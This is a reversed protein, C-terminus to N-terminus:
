FFYYSLLFFYIKKKLNVQETKPTIHYFYKLLLLLETELVECWRHNDPFSILPHGSRTVGGPTCVVKNRILKECDDLTVRLGEMTENSSIIMINLINMIM